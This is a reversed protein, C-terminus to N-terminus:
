IINCLVVKTKLFMEVDLALFTKVPMIRKVMVVFLLLMCTTATQEEANAGKGVNASKLIDGRVARLQEKRRTESMVQTLM